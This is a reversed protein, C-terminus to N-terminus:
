GNNLGMYTSRPYKKNYSSDDNYNWKGQSKRINDYYRFSTNRVKDIRSSNGRSRSMISNAQNMIDNVSKRRAM